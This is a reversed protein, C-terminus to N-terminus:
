RPPFLQAVAATWSERLVAPTALGLWLSLGLLIAPPLIVGFTERVRREGTGPKGTAAGRPRGDVISFVLRSFGFFVFLLGGLFVAGALRHGTEFAARIVRLESFFPGFPPCATAAFMGAVFLAASRPTVFAM